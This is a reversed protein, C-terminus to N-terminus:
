DMMMVMAIMIRIMIIIMMMMVMMTMMVMVMMVMMACVQSRVAPALGKFFVLKKAADPDVVVGDEDLFAAWRRASVTEEVVDAVGGEDCSSGYRM